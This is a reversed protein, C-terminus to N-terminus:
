EIRDCDPYDAEVIGIYHYLLKRLHENLELLEQVHDACDANPCDKYAQKM